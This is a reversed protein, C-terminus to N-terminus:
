VMHQRVRVDADSSRQLLPQFSPAFPLWFSEAVRTIKLADAGRRSRTKIRLASSQFVGPKAASRFPPAAGGRRTASWSEGLMALHAGWARGGRMNKKQALLYAENRKINWHLSYGSFTEVERAVRGLRLNRPVNACFLPALGKSLRTASRGPESSASPAGRGFSIERM